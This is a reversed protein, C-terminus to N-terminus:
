GGGRGDGGGFGCDLGDTKDDCGGERHLLSLNLGNCCFAPMFFGPPIAPTQSGASMFLTKVSSMKIITRVIIFFM